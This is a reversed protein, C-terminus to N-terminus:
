DFNMKLTATSRLQLQRCPHEITFHYRSVARTFVYIAPSLVPCRSHPPSIKWHESVAQQRGGVCNVPQCVLSTYCESSRQLTLCM